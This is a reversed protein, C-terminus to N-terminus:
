DREEPDRDPILQYSFEGRRLMGFQERAIREQVLPDTEIAVAVGRLSDVEQTLQAIRVQLAREEGRLTLWDWTSFEGGLVAFLLAGLTVVMALRRGKM